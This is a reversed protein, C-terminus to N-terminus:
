TLTNALEPAVAVPGSPVLKLSILTVTWDVKLTEALGVVTVTPMCVLTIKLTVLSPAGTFPM